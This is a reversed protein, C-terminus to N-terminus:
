PPVLIFHELSIRASRDNRFPARHFLVQIVDFKRIRANRPVPFELVETVPLVALDLGKVNPRSLVDRKGLSQVLQGASQTDILVLELAVTGPYRDANSIGLQIARCCGLHLPPDLKQLAKMSLPERDTTLFSLDLPSSRRFYSGRPPASLPAKFMWYQGSFPIRLPTPTVSPPLPSLLEVRPPAALVRQAEEVQPWLIVGRYSKDTIEIGASPQYLTTILEDPKGAGRQLDRNPEGLKRILARASGLPGRRMEPDSDETAQTGSNFDFVRGGVTLGQALILTVLIRLLSDPLTSPERSRYADAVLCLLTLGAASLCLVTAALLPAGMWLCVITTQGGLAVAYASGRLWTYSRAPPSGAVSELEGWQSYLMQTIDIVFALAAGIALPSLRLLLIATPALWISTRATRLSVRLADFGVSYASMLQFATMLTGSCLFALLADVVAEILVGALSQRHSRSSAAVSWVIWGTAVLSALQASLVLGAQPRWPETPTLGALLRSQSRPM